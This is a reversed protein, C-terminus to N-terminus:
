ANHPKSHAVRVVMVSLDIYRRYTACKLESQQKCIEMYSLLPYRM